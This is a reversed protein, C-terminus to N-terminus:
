DENDIDMDSFDYDNPDLDLSFNINEPGRLPFKSSKEIVRRKWQNYNDESGKYDFREGATRYEKQMELSDFFGEIFHNEISEDSFYIHHHYLADEKIRCYPGNEDLAFIFAFLDGMNEFKRKGRILEDLSMGFYDAIKVLQELTFTKVEEAKVDDKKKYRLIESVRSQNVGIIKALEDQKMPPNQENMKERIRNNIQENFRNSEEKNKNM